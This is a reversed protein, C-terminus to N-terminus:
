QQKAKRQLEEMKKLDALAKAANGQAEYISMRIQYLSIANPHKVIMANVIALAEQPRKKAILVKAKNLKPEPADGDIAIAKEFDALAQDFRNQSGHLQGRLTYGQWEEPTRRVLENLTTLAQDTKELTSQIFSMMVYWDPIDACLPKAALLVNEAEQIRGLGVLLNSASLHSEVMQPALKIAQRYDALAGEYEKYAERVAARGLYGYYLDPALSVAKNIDRKAGVPNGKLVHLSALELYVKYPRNDLELAKNFEALAADFNGRFRLVAGRARHFDPNSGDLAIAAEVDTMAEDFNGTGLRVIAHAYLSTGTRELEMAKEAHQTAIEVARQKAFVLALMAHCDARENDKAIAAKLDKEADLIRGLEFYAEGRLLLGDVSQADGQGAVIELVKVYQRATLQEQADQVWGAAAPAALSLMLFLFAFAAITKRM